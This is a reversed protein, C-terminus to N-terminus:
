SALFHDRGRAFGHLREFDLVMFRQDDRVVVLLMRVNVDDDVAHLGSFPM